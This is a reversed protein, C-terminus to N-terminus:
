SKLLNPNDQALQSSSVLFNQYITYFHQFFKKKIFFPILRSVCKEM